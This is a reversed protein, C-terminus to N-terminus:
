AVQCFTEGVCKIINLFSVMFAYRSTRLKMRTFHNLALIQDTKQETVDGTSECWVVKCPLMLDQKESNGDIVRTLAEYALRGLKREERNVTTIRPTMARAIFINDFGTLLVDEPVNIGLEKLAYYAGMAMQDNSCIFADVDLM